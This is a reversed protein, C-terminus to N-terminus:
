HTLITQVVTSKSTVLQLDYVPFSPADIGMHYSGDGFSAYKVENGFLDCNNEGLYNIVDRSAIEGSAKYKAILLLNVDFPVLTNIEFTLSIAEGSDLILPFLVEQGDIDRIEKIMDKYQFRTNENRQYIDYSILSVKQKSNNSIIVTYNIGDIIGQGQFGGSMDYNLMDSYGFGSDTITIIEQNDLTDKKM